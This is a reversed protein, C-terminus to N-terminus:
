KLLHKHSLTARDNAVTATAPTANGALGERMDLRTSIGGNRTRAMTNVNSPVGVGSRSARRYGPYERITACNGNADGTPSGPVMTGSNSHLTAPTRPSLQSYSQLKSQYEARQRRRQATTRAMAKGKM